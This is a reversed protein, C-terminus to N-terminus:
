DVSRYDALNVRLLEAAKEEPVTDAMFNGAGIEPGALFKILGPRRLPPQLLLHLHYDPYQGGDVPAQFFSMVYPFSMGYLLDYRRIVQQFVDALDHLEADSLTRLDAHRKKPFIMVEYAYRAFFPVFAIAHQNEALIRRGDQQEEALIDAFLNRGTGNRYEAVARQEREVLQFGFDTAYIQCHPHPNSVGVAEGKNEFILVSHIAPHAAMLHMEDRWAAFVAVVKPLAVESLTVHHRPDYCVVKAIGSAKERRYLGSVAALEPAHLGVVPHDNEFIYVGQYDPNQVGSIRRNGPCLYCTPDYAPPAVPAAVSAGSWPRSNRHAAYVVWEQRLPHWRKEWKGLFEKAEVM